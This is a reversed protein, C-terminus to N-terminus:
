CNVRCARATGHSNMFTYVESETMGWNKCDKFSEAINMDMWETENCKSDMFTGFVRLIKKDAPYGTIGHHIFNIYEKANESIMDLSRTEVPLSGFESSKLLEDRINADTMKELELLTGFYIMGEKDASRRLVIEYLEDITDRTNDTLQDLSKLGIHLSNYEESDYLGTKIEEPTIENKGLLLTYYHFAEEDAPRKLIDRYIDDVIKENKSKELSYNVFESLVSDMAHSFNQTPLYQVPSLIGRLQIDIDTILKTSNGQNQFKQHIVTYEADGDVVTLIQEDYPFLDHRVLITAVLGAEHVTMEYLLSSDTEELKNVSFVSKPLVLPYNEVDAMIHFIKETEIDVIKTIIISSLTNPVVKLPGVPKELSSDIHLLGMSIGIVLLAYFVLLYKDNKKM